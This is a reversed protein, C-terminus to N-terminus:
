KNIKKHLLVEIFRVMEIIACQILQLVIVMIALTNDQHVHKVVVCPKKKMVTILVIMVVTVNQLQHFAGCITVNSNIKMVHLLHVIEQNMLATAVITMM